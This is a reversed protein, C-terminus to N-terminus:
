GKIGRDNQLNLITHQLLEQHKSSLQNILSFGGKHRDEPNTGKFMEDLLFFTNQSSEILKLM